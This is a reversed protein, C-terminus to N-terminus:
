VICCLMVTNYKYLSFINILRSIGSFVSLICISWFMTKHIIFQFLLVTSCINQIVRIKIKDRIIIAKWFFNWHQLGIKIDNYMNLYFSQIMSELVSAQGKDVVPLLCFRSIICGWVFPLAPYWKTIRRESTEFLQEADAIGVTWIIHCCYNQRGLQVTIMSGLINEDTM